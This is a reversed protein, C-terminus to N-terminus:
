ENPEGSEHINPWISDLEHIELSSLSTDETTILKLGLSDNRQPYIRGTLCYIHNIFVEIVSHDLFVQMTLPQFPNPSLETQLNEASASEDQSSHSRDLVVKGIERDVHIITQEIGDPSCRLFLDLSGTGPEVQLNIELQDGHGPLPITAGREPLHDCIWTKKRLTKIEPLPQMLLRGSSDLSLARPLSQVGAWGAVTIAADNRAETVWGMLITRGASDIFAQPAYYDGGDVLQHTRPTFRLGDYSGTYAHVRREGTVSIILVYRDGFQLFNGCEWTPVIESGEFLKGLYSWHFCDTSEYLFICGFGGPTGGSLILKWRDQEYWVFPDRFGSVALGIPPGSIVPNESSKTLTKLGDMSTALCVSEAEGNRATYLILPLGDKVLACGSWVGSRDLGYEDPAMALPLDRWHVLDPSVTHGWHMDGWLAGHPNHQYFLHYEGQWHILGNPDNMWNAPAIFHYGTRNPDGAFQRRLEEAPIRRTDIEM